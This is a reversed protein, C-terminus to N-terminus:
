RLLNQSYWQIPRVPRLSQKVSCELIIIGGGCSGVFILTGVPSSYMMLSCVPASSSRSELSSTSSAVTNFLYMAAMIIDPGFSFLNVRFSTSSNNSLSLYMIRKLDRINEKLSLSM